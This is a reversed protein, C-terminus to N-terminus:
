GPITDRGFSRDSSGPIFYFVDFALHERLAESGKEEYIEVSRIGHNSLADAIIDERGTLIIGQRTMFITLGIGVLVMALMGGLFWLFITAFLSKGAKM